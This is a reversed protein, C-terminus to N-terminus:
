SPIMGGFPSCEVHTRKVSTAPVVTRQLNPPCNCEAGTPYHNLYNIDIKGRACMLNAGTESAIGLDISKCIFEWRGFAPEGVLLAMTGRRIDCKAETQPLIREPQCTGAECVMGATTCKRNCEDSTFCSVSVLACNSKDSYKVLTAGPSTLTSPSPRPRWPSRCYAVGILVAFCCLLLVIAFM